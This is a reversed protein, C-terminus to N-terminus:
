LTASNDLRPQRLPYGAVLFIGVGETARPREAGAVLRGLEQDTLRVPV